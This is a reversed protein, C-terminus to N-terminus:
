RAKFFEVYLLVSGVWAVLVIAIKKWMAMFWLKSRKLSIHTKPGKTKESEPCFRM